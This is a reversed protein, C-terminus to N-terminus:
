KRTDLWALMEAIEQQQAAIIEEALERTWPDSGHDLVAQAMDIAGRHHPIMACAFAVDIDTATGGLMMDRNMADMSDMMDQHAPSGMVPHPAMAMGAMAEANELCIAPLDVEPLTAAAGHDHAHEQAAAPLAAALVLMLTALSRPM